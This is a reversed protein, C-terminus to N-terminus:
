RGRVRHRPWWSRRFQLLLWSSLQSNVKPDDLLRLPSPDSGLLDRGAENYIKIASFKLVFERYTYGFIDAMAYETIGRMTHTKGSSNLDYELQFCMTVNYVNVGGKRYRHRYSLVRVMSSSFLSKRRWKM